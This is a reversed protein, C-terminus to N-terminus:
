LKRERQKLAIGLSIMAHPRLMSSGLWSGLDAQIEMIMWAVAV